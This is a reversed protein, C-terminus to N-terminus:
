IYEKADHNFTRYFNIFKRGIPFHADSHQSSESQEFNSQNEPVHM